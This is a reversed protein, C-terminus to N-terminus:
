HGSYVALWMPSAIKTQIMTTNHVFNLENFVLYLFCAELGPM